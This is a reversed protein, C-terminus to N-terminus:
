DRAPGTSNRPVLKVSIVRHEPKYEPLLLLEAINEGILEFDQEVTTIQTNGMTAWSINDFGTVSLEEPIKVSLNQCCMHVHFAVEDNECEVASIGKRNWENIIHKLMPYDVVGEQPADIQYFLPKGTIRNEHLSKSFGTYRDRISFVEDTSFRSLYCINRHGYSILHETLLAGGSHNDSVISSYQPYKHPKDLIIVPKDQECFQDLLEVPMNATSPYYVIGDINSEKLLELMAQENQYGAKFINLTFYCGYRALMDSAVEIAKFIGGQSISFPIMLAITKYVSKGQSAYSAQHAGAKDPHAVFSGVGRKRYLVGMSELQNLARKATIRSVNYEECISKETCLPVDYSFEGAKIKAYLENSITQYIPTSTRQKM